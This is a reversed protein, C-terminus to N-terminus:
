ISSKFTTSQENKLDFYQRQYSKFSKNNILSNIKKDEQKTNKTSKQLPPVFLFEVKNLDTQNKSLSFYEIFDGFGLSIIKTNLLGQLNEQKSETPLNRLTRLADKSTQLLFNKASSKDFFVPCISKYGGENNPYYSKGSRFAKALSPFWNPRLTEYISIKRTKVFRSNKSYFLFKTHRYNILAQESNLRDETQLSLLLPKENKKSETVLLFIEQNNLKQIFKNLSDGTTEQLIEKESGKNLEATINTNKQVTFFNLLETAKNPLFFCSAGFLPLLKQYLNVM